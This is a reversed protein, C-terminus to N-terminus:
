ARGVLQYGAEDVAARVAADDLPTESSVTVTGAKADASVGTVGPLAGLEESVSKECHGCSMGSVTFVATSM